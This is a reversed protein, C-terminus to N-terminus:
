GAFFLPSIDKNWIAIQVAEFIIKCHRGQGVETRGLEALANEVTFPQDQYARKSTMADITDAIAVIQSEIPVANGKLGFPYGSGDIREHHLLIVNKEVTGIGGEGCLLFGAQPHRQVVDWEGNNLKGPKDLITGPICIKGVDHLLAGRAVMFSFEEDMGLAEAVKHSLTATRVMHSMTGCHHRQLRSLLLGLRNNKMVSDLIERTVGSGHNPRNKSVQYASM